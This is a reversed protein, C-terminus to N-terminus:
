RTFNIQVEATSEAPKGNLMAPKYRWQRVASIAAQRLQSAGSIVRVASVSGEPSITVTMLVAGYTGMKRAIPPYVPATRSILTAQVLESKPRAPLAVPLNSISNVAADNSALSLKPAPM